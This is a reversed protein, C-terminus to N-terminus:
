QWQREKLAERSGRVSARPNRAGLLLALPRPIGAWVREAFSRYNEKGMLVKRFHDITGRRRKLVKFWLWPFRHAQRSLSGAAELEPIVETSIATQYWTM